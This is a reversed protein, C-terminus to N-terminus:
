GRATESSSLWAEWTKVRPTFAVASVVTLGAFFAFETWLAWGYKTWGLAWLVFGLITPGVCSACIMITPSYLLRAYGLTNKQFQGKSVWAGRVMRPFLVFRLLAAVGVELLAVLVFIPLVINYEAAAAAAPVTASAPTQSLVLVVLGIAASPVLLWVLGIITAKRHEAQISTERNSM